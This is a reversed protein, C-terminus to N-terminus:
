LALPLGIASQDKGADAGHSYTVYLSLLWLGPAWSAWM